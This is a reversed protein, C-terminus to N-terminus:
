RRRFGLAEAVHHRQIQQAGELDAITRSVRMLRTLGRNSLRLKEAAQEALSRSDDDMVFLAPSAQALVALVAAIRAVNLGQAGEPIACGCIIDEISAPDLGPVQALAAKLTTALLDDPRTNRFYGRHSKGIPTRTAAVIYADQVQKM